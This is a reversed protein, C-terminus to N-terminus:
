IDKHFTNSSVKVFVNAFFLKPLSNIGLNSIYKQCYERVANFCCKQCDCHCEISNLSGGWIHATYGMSKSTTNSGCCCLCIRFIWTMYITNANLDLRSRPGPVAPKAPLFPCVSPFSSCWSISSVSCGRWLWQYARSVFADYLCVHSCVCTVMPLLTFYLICDLTKHILSLSLWKGHSPTPQQRILWQKLTTACLSARPSASYWVVRFCHSLCCDM